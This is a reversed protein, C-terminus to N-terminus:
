SFTLKPLRWRLFVFSFLFMLILSWILHLSQNTSHPSGLEVLGCGGVFDFETASTETFNLTIDSIESIQSDYTNTLSIRYKYFRAKDTESFSGVSIWSPSFNQIDSTAVELNLVAGSALISNASLSDIHIATNRSDISNSIWEYTQNGSGVSGFIALISVPDEASGGTPTADADTLWTRGKTSDGGNAVNVSVGGSGNSASITGDIDINGGSFIAISGGAGAGGAGALSTGTVDGGNGGDAMISGSASIIVDGFSVITVVGGGAGGSAGSGNQAATGLSYLGGGGGGSGGGAESFEPDGGAFSNGANGASSGDPNRGSTPSGTNYAGGGGGGVGGTGSGTENSSGAQGGTISAGGVGGDTASQVSGSFYAGDGGSGGGCRTSGGSVLISEETNGDSGNEGSCNIAGEITVTSQSRIVLDGSGTPQITWGSDLQFSTFQLETYVDTDITIINGSTDGNQSFNAYTTSDFVGDSGDGYSIATFSDVDGFNVRWGRIAMNSTLKQSSLNLIFSNSEAGSSDSFSETLSGAQLSLSFLLIAFSARWIM